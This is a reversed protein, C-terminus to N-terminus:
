AEMHTNSGDFEDVCHWDDGLLADFKQLYDNFYVCKAPDYASYSGGFLMGIARCGGMCLKWHPCAQCKPNEKRLEGATHCVTQLYESDSLLERLPTEHVNGMRLGQKKFLGSLQNCPLIDGEPTVAIRGRADRCVPFSDRYSRVGGLVPRHHYLKQKPWIQFVQWIDINISLGESLFARIFDLGFGYYEAIGLCLDGGMQAWRPAETTRIIRMEDVGMEDALKATPLITDINGKHVNTQVRVHFGRSRLLKIKKIVDREAGHKDRFWDHHGIGDLSLKFLTKCGLRDFEDLMEPTIFSGNTTLEEIVMGRRDIERCIDMFHPHLMPEGGTLTVNQVGCEDLQQIFERCQEWTFESMLPANDAANFCHRCNFNCRGTIAWNVAPFYRNDCFRYRQWQTLKDGNEAVRDPSAPVCLGRAMLRDLEPSRAIATEGDCMILIDFEEPTLKCARGSGRMYYARPVLRWGRLAIDSKLIYPM